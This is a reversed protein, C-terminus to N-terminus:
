AEVFLVGVEWEDEEEGVWVGSEGDDRGDKEGDFVEFEGCVAGAAGRVCM